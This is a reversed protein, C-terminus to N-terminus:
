SKSVNNRDLRENQLYKTSMSKAFKKQAFKKRFLRIVLHRSREVEAVTFMVINCLFCM